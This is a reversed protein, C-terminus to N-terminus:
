NEKDFIGTQLFMQRTKEALAGSDTALVEEKPIVTLVSLRVTRKKLSLFRMDRTGETLMVVIPAEARQAMVFAGRKFPLLRTTKSRTGEPYIGFDFGDNKVMDAAEEIVRVSQKPKSREIGLFGSAAIFPGAVPIKMNEIKSVFSLKRKPFAAFTVIPDLNSRHNSILVFPEKPLMEEGKIVVKTHFLVLFWRLSRFLVARCFPISKGKPRKPLFLSICLLILLYLASIGAYLIPTAFYFWPSIGLGFVLGSMGLLALACLCLHILM